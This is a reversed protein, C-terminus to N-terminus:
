RATWIEVVTGDLVAGWGMWGWGPNDPDGWGQGWSGPFGFSGGGYRSGDAYSCFFPVAHGGLAREGARKQHIVGKPADVMSQYVTFAVYCPYGDNLNQIANNLLQQGSGALRLYGSIGYDRAAAIADAKPVANLWSIDGADAKAQDWPSYRSPPCGYDVLAQLAGRMSAGQDAPFDMDEKLRTYYYLYRPDPTDGLDMPSGTDAHYKAALAARVQYALSAATCASTRGQSMCPMALNVPTGDISRYQRLDVNPNLAMFPINPDYSWDRHDRPAFKVGGYYDPYAPHLPQAM